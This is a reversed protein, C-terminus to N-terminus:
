AVETHFTEYIKPHEIEGPTGFPMGRAVHCEEFVFSAKLSVLFFVVFTQTIIITQWAVEERRYEEGVSVRYAVLYLELCLTVVQTAYFCQLTTAFLKETERVSKVVDWHYQVLQDMSVAHRKGIEVAKVSSSDREKGKRRGTIAKTASPSDEVGWIVELTNSLQIKWDRLANQLVHCIAVFVFLSGKYIVFLHGIVIGMVVHVVKVAATEQNLYEQPVLFLVRTLADVIGQMSQGGFVGAVLMALIFAGLFIMLIFSSKRLGKALDFGTKKHLSDLNNIFKCFTHRNCFLNFVEVWANFLCGVIIIVAMLEMEHSGSTPSPIPYLFLRALGISTTVMLANLWAYTILTHIAAVSCWRFEFENKSENFTYLVIGVIMLTIRIIKTPGYLVNESGNKETASRAEVKETEITNIDIKWVGNENVWGMPSETSSVQGEEIITKNQLKRKLTPM